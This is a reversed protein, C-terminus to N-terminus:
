RCSETGDDDLHRNEWAEVYEQLTNALTKGLKKYEHSDLNAFSIRVSWESGCFGGGSVMIVACEEAVRYVIDAPTFNECLWDFFEQGHTHVAWRDIEFTCYYHAMNPNPKVPIGMGEWFLKYRKHVLANCDRRYSGMKGMRDIVAFGAFLAMQVQQPASLGATHSMEVNRSDAAMRDIFRMHEPDDTVCGYLKALREKEEACHKALMQDYINDDRMTIVGLRWGTCGFYKSFSYISITNQPLDQMLSNFGSVFTGYVNDTLIMLNPNSEKVLKILYERSHSDIMVSTPNGPNIAFFAKVSPDALKDLESKPYQYNSNGDADRGSAHIYVVELGYKDLQLLEIYSTLVPTGIAIKDGRKLLGNNTLSNLIYCIAATGGETAFLKYSESLPIKSARLEQLLFARVVKECYPLMRVPQPYQCGVIAEAFEFILDEVDPSFFRVGNKYIDALLEVGPRDKHMQLFKFFRKAIGQKQPVGGLGSPNNRDIRCEAMAFLGLAFFAERASMATWNPNARGTDLMSRQEHIHRSDAFKLLNTKHCIPNLSGQGSSPQKPTKNM